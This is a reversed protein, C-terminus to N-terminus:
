GERRQPSVAHALRLLKSSLKLRSQEAADLNVDFRMRNQELFLRIMGGRELFDGAGGVTLVGTGRLAALIEPLRKEAAGIFLVHCGQTARPDRLLRVVLRRSDLTEGKVTARLSAGFPEDDLVCLVLPSGADAFTEPPWEVFKAFNYLFAAKVDRESEPTVSPAAPAASAASVQTCVAAALLLGALLGRM